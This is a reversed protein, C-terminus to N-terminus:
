PRGPKRPAELSARRPPQAQSVRRGKSPPAGASHKRCRGTERGPKRIWSIDSRQGEQSAQGLRPMALEPEEHSMEERDLDWPIPQAPPVSM